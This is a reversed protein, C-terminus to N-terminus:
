FTIKPKFTLVGSIGNFFFQQNYYDCCTYSSGLLPPVLHNIVLFHGNHPVSVSFMLSNVNVQELVCINVLTGTIRTYMSITRVQLIAVRTLATVAPSSECTFFTNMELHVLVGNKSSSFFFTWLRRSSTSISLLPM